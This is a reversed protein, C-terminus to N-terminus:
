EDYGEARVAITGDTEATLLFGDSEYSPRIRAVFPPEIEGSSMVFIQPEYKQETDREYLLTIERKDLELDVTLDEGLNRPRLLRDDVLPVWRQILRGKDDELLERVSFEYGHQYFTLGIERGQMAAEEAALDMLAELRRMDEAGNDEAFGGVSLTFISILVGIVVIVVLVEVLTFGRHRGTRRIGAANHSLRRLPSAKRGTESIPMLAM